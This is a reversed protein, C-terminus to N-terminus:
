YLDRVLYFSGCVLVSNNTQKAFELAEHPDEVAYVKDCYKLAIVKLTDVDVARSNSPKTLVITDCLPGIISLYGDINKDAMMGIVATVKGKPFNSKLALAGDVNHAGDFMIGNIVNQRAPLVPKKANQTLGLEKLVANATAINNVNFDDNEDVLVLKTKSIRCYDEFIKQTEKNPYLVCISNNKIIGAKETAIESVTDGFFNTHDLAISTIVSIVPHDVVNTSDGKGGMGCEVVAYDVKEDFFYKYMIATLFEFETCDNDQFREVYNAFVNESIFNNDIQIQERYDLVWPSTFLGVKYGDDRLANCISNAVTGKGNTGAIHIVKIENQPNGMKDLLAKIRELGPKIGMSQKTVILDLAEKYTM